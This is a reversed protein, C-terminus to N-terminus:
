MFLVFGLIVVQVLPQYYFKVFGKREPAVSPSYLPGKYEQPITADPVNDSSSLKRETDSM